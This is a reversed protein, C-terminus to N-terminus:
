ERHVGKCAEADGERDVGTVHCLSMLVCRVHTLWAGIARRRRPAQVRMRRGSSRSASRHDCRATRAQSIRMWQNISQRQRGRSHHHLQHHGSWPRASPPPPPPPRGHRRIRRRSQRNLQQLWSCEVLLRAISSLSVPPRSDAAAVAAATPDSDTPSDCRGTLATITTTRVPLVPACGRVRWDLDLVGALLSWRHWEMCLVARECSSVLATAPKLGARPIKAVECAEGGRM